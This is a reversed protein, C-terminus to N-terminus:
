TWSGAPEERQGCHFNSVDRLWLPTDEGWGWALWLAPPPERCGEWSSTGEQHGGQARHGPDQYGPSWPHLRQVQSPCQPWSAVPNSSHEHLDMHVICTHTSTCQIHQRSMSTSRHTDTHLCSPSIIVESIESCRHRSPYHHRPAPTIHHPLPNLYLSQLWIFLTLHQSKRKCATHDKATNVRESGWKQKQKGKKFMSNNWKKLGSKSKFGLKVM